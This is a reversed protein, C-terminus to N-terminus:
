FEDDKLEKNVCVALTAGVAPAGITGIIPTSAITVVGVATMGAAEKASTSKDAAGLIVGVGSLIAGGGALLLPAGLTGGIGVGTAILRRFHPNYKTETLLYESFRGPYNCDNLARVRFWYYTDSSLDNVVLSHDPGENAEIVIPEEWPKGKRRYNVEYNRVSELNEIPARWVLMIRDHARKLANLDRPKGPIPGTKKDSVVSPSLFRNQLHTTNQVTFSLTLLQVTGELEKELKKLNRNYKHALLIDKPIRFSRDMLLNIYDDCKKLKKEITDIADQTGESLELQKAQELTKRIIRTRDLIDHLHDDNQEAKEILEAITEVIQICSCIGKLVSAAISLPVAM